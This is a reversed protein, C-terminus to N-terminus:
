RAPRVRKPDVGHVMLNYLGLEESLNRPGSLEKATTKEM